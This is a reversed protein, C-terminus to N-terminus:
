LAQNGKGLTLLKLFILVRWIVALRENIELNRIYQSPVNKDTVKHFLPNESMKIVGNQSIDSLFARSVKSHQALTKHLKM